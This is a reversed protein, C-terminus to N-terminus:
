KAGKRDMREIEAVLMAAAIILRRRRDHTQRKDGANVQVIGEYRGHNVDRKWPWPNRWHVGSPSAFVQHLEIPSAYLAAALALDGNTHTDDHDPSWGEKMIQRQREITIEDIVTM